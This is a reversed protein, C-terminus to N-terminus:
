FYNEKKLIEIIEQTARDAEGEANIIRYDYFPGENEIERRAYELRDAIEKESIDGGRREHRSALNEFSDPMIFISIADYNKKYYRVGEIDPNVIISRNEALKKELDPKYTGYYVNKDRNNTYELVNGAKIEGLFQENNFFYYDVENKENLRPPRTTATVLRTFNPLREIIKKTITSEGVGTPGGIVLIKRKM